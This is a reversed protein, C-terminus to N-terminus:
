FGDKTDGASNWQVEIRHAANEAELDWRFLFSFANASGYAQPLTRCDLVWHTKM